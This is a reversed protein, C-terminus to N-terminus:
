HGHYIVINEMRLGLVLYGFQINLFWRAVRSVLPQKKGFVYCPSAHQEVILHTTTLRARCKSGNVLFSDPNCLDTHGDVHIMNDFPAFYNRKLQYSCM